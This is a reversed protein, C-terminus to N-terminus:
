GKPAEALWEKSSWSDWVGYNGDRLLYLKDKVAEWRWRLMRDVQARTFVRDPRGPEPDVFGTCPCPDPQGYMRAGKLIYGLCPGHEPHMRAWHPCGLCFKVYREAELYAAGGQTQHRAGDLIVAGTEPTYGRNTDYNPGVFNSM